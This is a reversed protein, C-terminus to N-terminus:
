PSRRTLDLRWAEVVVVVTSRTFRLCRLARNVWKYCGTINKALWPNKWVLLRKKGGTNKKTFNDFFLLLEHEVDEGNMWKMRNNGNSPAEDSSEVWFARLISINAAVSKAAFQFGSVIFAWVVVEFSTLLYTRCQTANRALLNFSLLILTVFQRSQSRTVPTHLYTHIQPETSVTVRCNEM